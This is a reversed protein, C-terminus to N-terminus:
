PPADVDVAGIGREMNGVRQERDPRWTGRGPAASARPGAM